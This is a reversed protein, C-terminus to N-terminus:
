RCVGVFRASKVDGCTRASHLPVAVSTASGSSRWSAQQLSNTRCSVTRATRVSPVVNLSSNVTDSTVGRIHRHHTTWLLLERHVAHRAHIHVCHSRHRVRNHQLLHHHVLHHQHLLHRPRNAHHIRLCRLHHITTRWHWTRHTTVAPKLAIPTMLACINSTSSPTSATRRTTASTAAASM